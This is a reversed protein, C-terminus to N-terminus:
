TRGFVRSLADYWEEKKFYVNRSSTSTLEVVPTEVSIHKRFIEACKRGNLIILEIKSNDLVKRIPAVAYNSISEDRSGSIRCKEAVDWLAINHRQLFKKQEDPDNPRPEGFFESLTGWFRNQRNGYYFGVQRSKVSPFSGLILLRSQSDYFPPFGTFQQEM